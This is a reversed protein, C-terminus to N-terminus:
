DRKKLRLDSTQDLKTVKLKRNIRNLFMQNIVHFEYFLTLGLNLFTNSCAKFHHIVHHIKVSNLM